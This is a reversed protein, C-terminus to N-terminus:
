SNHFNSLAKLIKEQKDLDLKHYENLLYQEKKTIFKPSKQKPPESFFNEIKIRIVLLWVLLGCVAAFLMILECISYNFINYKDM